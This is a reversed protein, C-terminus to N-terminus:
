SIRWESKFADLAANFESPALGDTKEMLGLLAARKEESLAEVLRMFERTMESESLKMIGEM